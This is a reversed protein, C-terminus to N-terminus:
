MPGHFDIQKSWADYDDDPIIHPLGTVLGKMKPNIWKRLLDVKQEETKKARTM